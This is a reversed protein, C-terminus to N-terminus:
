IKIAYSATGYSGHAIHFWAYHLEPNGHADLLWLLPQTEDDKVYFSGASILYHNKLLSPYQTLLAISENINLAHRREKGFKKLADKPSKAVMNRGDEVDLLLYLANKAPKYDIRALDLETHGHMNKIQESINAEKIILLPIQGKPAFAITSVKSELAKWLEELNDKFEASFAVAQSNFEKRLIELNLREKKTFFM